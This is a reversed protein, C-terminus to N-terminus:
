KIYQWYQRGGQEMIRLNRGALEDRLQDSKQYNKKAREAQYQSILEKAGEDIDPADAVLKLGFLRDVKQWFILDRHKANEIAVMAESSNLNQNVAELAALFDAGNTNEENGNQHCKAVLNRWNLRRQRAAELDRFSFNRESQYHGQLVWMKFDM